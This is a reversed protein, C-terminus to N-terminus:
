WHKSAVIMDESLEKLNDCRTVSQLKRESTGSPALIM